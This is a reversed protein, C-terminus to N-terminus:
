VAIQTGIEIALSEAICFHGSADSASRALAISVHDQRLPMESNAHPKLAQAQALIEM